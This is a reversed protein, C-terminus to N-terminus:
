YDIDSLIAASEIGDLAEKIAKGIEEIVDYFNDDGETAIVELKVTVEM